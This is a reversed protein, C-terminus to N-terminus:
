VIINKLSILAKSKHKMLYVHGFRLLDDIFIIFYSYGERAKTTMPGCVDTHMLGFLEAVMDGHGIFPSKTM